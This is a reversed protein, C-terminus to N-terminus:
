RNLTAINFLDVFVGRGFWILAWNVTKELHMGTEQSTHRIERGFDTPILSCHMRKGM